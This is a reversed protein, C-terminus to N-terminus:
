LNIDTVSQNSVPEKSMFETNIDLNDVLTQFYSKFTKDLEKDESVVKDEEILTIGENSDTKNSFFPKATKM